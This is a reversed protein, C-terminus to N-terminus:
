LNKAKLTEERFLALDLSFQQLESTPPGRRKGVTPIAPM